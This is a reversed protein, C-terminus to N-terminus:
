GSIAMPIGLPAFRVPLTAIMMTVLVDDCNNDDDDDNIMTTITITVVEM